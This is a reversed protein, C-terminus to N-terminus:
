IWMYIYINFSSKWFVALDNYSNDVLKYQHTLPLSLPQHFIPLTHVGIITIARKFVGDILWITPSVM